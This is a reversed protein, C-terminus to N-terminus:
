AASASSRAAGCASPRMRWSLGARGHRAGDARGPRLRDGAERPYLKSMDRGVMLRAMEVPELGEIDRTAVHRGDRLVTVRDAIAKVENSATPSTSCRWARPACGASSRRVPERGRDPTLVATPEDFVVVQAARAARPRDARAAPRRHSLRRVEPTPDIGRASSACSRRADARAHGRRRRLRLAPDRPRPVPEAGGDPGDALLIEQHVLVIGQSRRRSLRRRLHDAPRESSAARRDAALHGSLIRM